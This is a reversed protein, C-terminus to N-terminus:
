LFALIILLCGSIWALNFNNRKSLLNGIRDGIILMGIGVGFASLLILLFSLNSLGIGIGVAFNDLSLACALLCTERISLNKSYDLDSLEPHSYIHFVLEMRSVRIRIEQKESIWKQFSEIFKTIGMVVLIITRILTTLYSPMYPGIVGGVTMSIGLISVGILNLFCIHFFPIKIRNMGISLGAIATDISLSFILLFARLVNM